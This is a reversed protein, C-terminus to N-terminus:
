DSAEAFTSPIRYVTTMTDVTCKRPDNGACRVLVVMNRVEDGRVVSRQLSSLTKDVEEAPCVVTAHAGRVGCKREREASWRWGRRDRLRKLLAESRCIGSAGSCGSEGVTGNQRCQVQVRRRPFTELRLLRSVDGLVGM